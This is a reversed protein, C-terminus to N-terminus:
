DAEGVKAGTITYLFEEPDKDNLKLVGEIKVLSRRLTMSKDRPLEVFVIGTTEPTECFWCGVPYEILLFSSVELEEGIPQMFGTLAVRKGDLQKLYDAFTPRARNDLVTEALVEWPLVNVGDARVPPLAKADFRHVLPRPSRPRFGAPVHGEHMPKPGGAAQSQADAATRYAQRHRRLEPDSMGLETVCGDLIAAATKVDGAANALEGLQWLLRGDAPMWLALRQVLAAADEPLKKREEEPLQGPEGPYRVGFLDDLGAAGPSRQRLRVLKLQLEEARRLKPPALRVAQALAVAAQDLDGRVQWATGLNAAVRFGDPHARQATRLREVADGARGLRVLLAGLDAEEDATLPRQQGAAELKVAANRYAERLPHEPANGMPVVALKRLLRQDILFGRWQSPLEAVPEGSYYLGAPAAPALALLITLSLLVTIRM